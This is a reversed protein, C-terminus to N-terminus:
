DRGSILPMLFHKLSQLEWQPVIPDTTDKCHWSVPEIGPGACHTLPDLTAVAKAYTVVAVRIQDRAWFEM